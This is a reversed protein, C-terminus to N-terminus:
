ASFSELLDMSGDPRVRGDFLKSWQKELHELVNSGSETRPFYFYNMEECYFVAVDRGYTNQLYEIHKLTARMEEKSSPIWLGGGGSLSELQEDTLDKVPQDPESLIRANEEPTQAADIRRKQDDTLILESNM